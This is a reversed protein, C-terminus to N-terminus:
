LIPKPQRHEPVKKTCSLWYKRTFIEAIKNLTDPTEPVLEFNQHTTPHDPQTSSNLIFRDWSEVLNLSFNLTLKAVDHLNKIPKQVELYVSYFWFCTPASSPWTWSLSLNSKAKIKQLNSKELYTQYFQNSQNLKKFKFSCIQNQM